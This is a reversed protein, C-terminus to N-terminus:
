PPAVSCPAGGHFLRYVRRSAAILNRLWQAAFADNENYYASSTM